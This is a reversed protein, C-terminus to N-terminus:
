LFDKLAEDLSKGERLPNSGKKATLGVHNNWVVKMGANAAGVVDGSSGAVFLADEPKVNLASLIAAYTSLHPKYFSQLTLFFQLYCVGLRTELSLL